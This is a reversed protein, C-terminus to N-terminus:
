FYNSKSVKEWSHGQEMENFDKEGGEHTMTALFVTMARLMLWRCLGFTEETVKEQDRNSLELMIVTYLAPFMNLHSATNFSPDDIFCKLSEIVSRSMLQLISEDASMQSFLSTYASVAPQYQALADNGYCRKFLAGVNLDICKLKEIVTPIGEIRARMEEVTKSRATATRAALKRRSAELAEPSDDDSPEDDVVFLGDAQAEDQILRLSPGTLVYRILKRLEQDDFCQPKVPHHANHRVKSNPHITTPPCLSAKLNKRSFALTVGDWITVKPTPGCTSCRMDNQLDLLRAYSFWAARFRKESLFPSPSGYTEYRRVLVSVWAVFPTESTSFSSTYDDLLDHTLLVRNNWNFLGLEQCDPGIFRYRCSPCKQLKISCYWMRTLGYIECNHSKM